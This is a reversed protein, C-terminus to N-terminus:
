LVIRLKASEQDVLGITLERGVDKASKSKPTTDVQLSQDGVGLERRAMDFVSQTDEDLLMQNEM